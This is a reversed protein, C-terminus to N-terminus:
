TPTLPLVGPSPPFIRVQQREALIEDLSRDMENLPLYILHPNRTSHRVRRSDLSPYGRRDKSTLM